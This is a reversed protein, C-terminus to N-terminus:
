YVKLIAQALKKGLVVDTAYDGRLAALAIPKKPEPDDTALILLVNNKAAIQRIRLLTLTPNVQRMFLTADPDALEVENGDKDLLNFALDGVSKSVLKWQHQTFLQAMLGDSPAAAGAGCIFLAANGVVSAHEARMAEEEVRPLALHRAGFLEAMTVALFNASRHFQKPDYASNGAVFLLRDRLRQAREDSEDLLPPDRLLAKVTESVARGGANCVVVDPPTEDASTPSPKSQIVDLIIELIVQAARVFLPARGGLTDNVVYFRIPRRKDSNVRRSLEGSLEEEQPPILKLFTNQARRLARKVQMLFRPEPPLGLKQAIKNATLGDQWAYEAVLYAFEPSAPDHAEENRKQSLISDALGVRSSVSRSSRRAARSKKTAM